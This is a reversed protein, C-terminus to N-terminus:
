LSEEASTQLNTIQGAILWALLWGMPASLTDILFFLRYGLLSTLWGSAAMPVLMCGAITPLHLLNASRSYRNASLCSALAYCASLGLGFAGQALFTCLSLTWLSTPPCFTMGLYVAPSVGLAAGLWPFHHHTKRLLSHGLAIGLSFAIVGVTGQAFGIEQMTCQLGGRVHTDYLYLVRAYFLLGQPLLILFLCVFLRGWTLSRGRRWDNPVMKRNGTPDPTETEEGGPYNPIPNQHILINLLFFFLMVGALVYLAMSWATRQQRFFIQLAGVLSILAGYTLIVALQSFVMRPTRLLRRQNSPVTMEYYATGVEEHWACLLSVGMLALCVLDRRGPVLFAVGGVALVLLCEAVHLQLLLSSAKSACSRLLPRLMWPLFFMASYFTAEAASARLQLLLLLAVYMVMSSPIEGVAFLTSLLFSRRPM